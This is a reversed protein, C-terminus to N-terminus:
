WMNYYYEIENKNNKQLEKRGLMKEMFRPDRGKCKQLKTLRIDM